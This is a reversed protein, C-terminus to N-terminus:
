MWTCGTVEVRATTVKRHPKPQNEPPQPDCKRLTTSPARIHHKRCEHMDRCIKFGDFEHGVGTEYCLELMLSSYDMNWVLLGQQEVYQGLWEGLRIM